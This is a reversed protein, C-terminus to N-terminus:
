CRRPVSAGDRTWRYRPRVWILLTRDGCISMWADILKCPRASYLGSRTRPRPRPVPGRSTRLPDSSHEGRADDRRSHTRVHRSVWCGELTAVVLHVVAPMGATKPVCLLRHTIGAPSVPIHPGSALHSPPRPYHLLSHEGHAEVAGRLRM